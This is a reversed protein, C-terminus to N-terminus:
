PTMRALEVPRLRQELGQFLTECDSPTVAGMTAIQLLGQLKLYDSEGAVEFGLQRCAARFEDASWGQPPAFTTLVPSAWRPDDVMPDLGLSSLGRRVQRGLEAFRDYRIARLPPTAYEDLSRELAELLPSSVTFRPGRTALSERLDLYTPSRGISPRELVEPSAFVIGLGSYSGLSKGSSGSALYVGSLDIPVAGLSSVCDVCVRVETGELADVLWELDNLMGTSSELHVGWVWGIRRDDALAEAVDGLDWPQGWSWRLVRAKLGFRAAQRAIREGFEGNALVLGPGLDPDDALTSAVVDNALTGSGSVLAVLSGSRGVLDGLRGRVEEFRDVFEASRHSRVPSSLALKVAEAIEVPGPLLSITRSRSPRPRRGLRAQWRDLTRRSSPPLQGFDFCMPVFEASGSPVAPGIARFGMKEYFPVRQRLGSILAHTYGRDLAHDVVALILGPVIMGHRAGRRVALLRVEILRDGLRDLEGPNSLRAAISFPPQDHVAVMGVVEDGQLAVFYTNKDHFKDVLRGDGTAQFQGIEDVFTEHNLRHIQEIEAGTSAAKYQYRGPRDPEHADKAMGSADRM